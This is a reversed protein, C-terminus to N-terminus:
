PKRWAVLKFGNLALRSLPVSQLDLPVHFPGTSIEVRGIGFGHELLLTQIDDLTARNCSDYSSMVSSMWEDFEMGSDSLFQGLTVAGQGEQGSQGPLRDLLRLREVIGDRGYRLHDFPDLWRWLHHGHESYWLPWVQVLLHGYPKIVRWAEGIYGSRDFVHEMVSWSVGLDFEEDEAEISSSTAKRFELHLDSIDVRRSMAERRLVAADTPDLDFGVVKSAGLRALGAAMIGDGCGFDAVSRGALGIGEAELFSSIEGPADHWHTDWWSDDGVM